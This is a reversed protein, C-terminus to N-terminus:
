GEEEEPWFMRRSNEWAAKAVEEVSIGKLGAIIFAVHSIGCSENREKVMHEETWKDKKKSGPLTPANVLYRKAVESSAQIIGWPADTELQLKDLPVVAVMELSERDKFAFGNVSVELGMSILKQMQATTGVFSHVLGGKPLKDVYGMMVDVFDDFAARCHLFLPLEWGQAVYLDLQDKFCRLQTEKDSYDLHDYDLGLEGYAHVLGEKRLEEIQTAMSTFYAAGDSGNVYPESAHYPHVGITINCQQSKSRAIEANFSIDSASMGTLLIKEVSFKSARSLVSSFDPNHYQKGRYIGQFEKATATVAVQNSTRSNITCLISCQHHKEHYLHLIPIHNTYLKWSVDAYELEVAPRTPAADPFGQLLNEEMNGFAKTNQNTETTGEPIWLQNIRSRYPRIGAFISTKV